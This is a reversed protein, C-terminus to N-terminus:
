GCALDVHSFLPAQWWFGPRFRLSFNLIRIALILGERRGIKQLIKIIQPPGKRCFIGVEIFFVGIPCFDPLVIPSLDLSGALSTANVEM